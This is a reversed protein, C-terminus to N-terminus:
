PTQERGVAKRASAKTKALLRMLAEVDGPAVHVLTVDADAAVADVCDEWRSEIIWVVARM